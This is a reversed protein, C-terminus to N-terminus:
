LPNHWFSIHTGEKNHFEHINRASVNAGDDLDTSVYSVTRVGNLWGLEHHRINIYRGSWSIDITDSQKTIWLFDNAQLVKPENGKKDVVSLDDFLIIRRATKHNGARDHTIIEM